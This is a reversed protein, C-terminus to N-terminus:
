WYMPAALRVEPLWFAPAVNARAAPLVLGCPMALGGAGARPADRAATKVAHAPLVPDSGRSSPLRLLAEGARPSGPLKQVM